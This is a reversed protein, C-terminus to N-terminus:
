LHYDGVGQQPCPQRGGSWAAWPGMWVADGMGTRATLAAPVASSCLLGAGEGRTPGIGLLRRRRGEARGARLWAAAAPTARSTPLRFCSFIFSHCLGVGLGRRARPSRRSPGRVGWEAAALLSRDRCPACGHHRGRGVPTPRLRLNGLKRGRGGGVGAARTGRAPDRKRERNGEWALHLVAAAAAVPVAATLAAARLSSFFFFLPQSCGKRRGGVGRQASQQGEGHRGGGGGGGGGAITQAGAATRGGAGARQMCVGGGLHSRPTPAGPAAMGRMGEHGQPRRCGGGGRM